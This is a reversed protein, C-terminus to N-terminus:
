PRVRRSLGTSSHSILIEDDNSESFTSISKQFYNSPKLKSSPCKLTSEVINSPHFDGYRQQQKSKMSHQNPIAASLLTDEDFTQTYFYELPRSLNGSLSHTTKSPYFHAWDDFNKELHQQSSKVFPHSLHSSNSKTDTSKKSEDTFSDDEHGSDFTDLKDSFTKDHSQRILWSPTSISHPHNISYANMLHIQKNAQIGTMYTSGHVKSVNWCDDEEPIESSQIVINQMINDPHVKQQSLSQSEQLWLYFGRSLINDVSQSSSPDLQNSGISSISQLSSEADFSSTQQIDSTDTSLTQHDLENTLVSKAEHDKTLLKSRSNKKSIVESSTTKSWTPLSSSPQPTNIQQRMYEPLFLDLKSSVEESLTTSTNSSIGTTEKVKYEPQIADSSPEIHIAAPPTLVPEDEGKEKRQSRKKRRKVPKEATITSELIVAPATQPVLEEREAQNIITRDNTQNAPEDSLKPIEEIENILSTTFQISDQQNQSENPSDIPEEVPPDTTSSTSPPITESESTPVFSISTNQDVMEEVSLPTSDVKTVPLSHTNDENTTSIKTHETDPLALTQPVPIRLLRDNQDTSKEVSTDTVNSVISSTPQNTTSIAETIQQIPENKAVLQDSKTEKAHQEHVVKPKINKSPRSTNSAGVPIITSTEVSVSRPPTYSSSIQRKDQRTKVQINQNSASKSIPTTHSVSPSPSGHRGHFAFRNQDVTRNVPREYRTKTSPSSPINASRPASTMRKRYTVLQFGDNDEEEEDAQPVPPKPLIVKTTTTMSSISQSPINSHEVVPSSPDDSQANLEHEITASDISISSQEDKKQKKHKNGKKKSLLSSSEEHAITTKPEVDRDIMVSSTIAAATPQEPKPASLIRGRYRVLQFGENDEDEEEKKSSPIINVRTIKTTSEMTPLVSQVISSSGSPDVTSKQDNIEMSPTEDFLNETRKDESDGTSILQVSEDTIRHSHTINVTSEPADYLIAEKEDNKKSKKRKKKSTTDTTESVIPTPPIPVNPNGHLVIPKLDIDPSVPVKITDSSSPHKEHITSSPIRKRRQVIQFGADDHDHEDQLKANQMTTKGSSEDLSQASKVESEATSDHRNLQPHDDNIVPSPQFLPKKENENDIQISTEEDFVTDMKQDQTDIFSILQEYEDKTPEPADYLIMEKKDKNKSKKRKKKPTVDTTGSIIPISPIPANPNGHLIIPKLDIDPSVPIKVDEINSSMTKEHATSSPIRKRRQVLQFDADDQVHENELETTEMVIAKSSENLVQANSPQSVVEHHHQFQEYFQAFRIEADIILYHSSYWPYDDNLVQLPQWLLHTENENGISIAVTEVSAINTKQDESNIAPILPMQDDAITQSVMSTLTLEPADYLIMEKKHKNKSKKRKKEPTTDTTESVIPTSPILVTPNGSLIVPKLDIDSSAPVDNADKSSHQKEHVTSSPIRKRRQVIQFGADDQDHEDQLKTNQMTTKGSSEELSQANAPLTVTQNSLHLQEHSQAFMLESDAISDYRNLQSHDDNIVISSQFSSKKENENDIQMSTEEDFVTDMKQDQTDILSILQEQEDKTPEPANYLIMEKKDKNKSKKRKKKPIIDTRESIIPVSSIPANPNGHLIVPKLDIDPSAPVENADSSSPHKEQVTSSPIRKRRQVIQFDADDHEHEDQLEANRIAAKGSSEDIIVQSSQFLSKKENGDDIQMSTEEDFAHDTKQDQTDILSILQEHEDRTTQSSMLNVPLEPADYLIMEKKDNKKSKQRKKKPTADIAQSLLPRHSIPANPNGHLLVPKLDIDPSVPVDTVDNISSFPKEHITSSPIRKRRQVIQFGTDDQDHEEQVKASEVVTKEVSEALLHTNASSSLAQDSHHLQPYVQSFRTEAEIISYHSAYWPYDDSIVQLPQYPSKTEDQQNKYQCHRSRHLSHQKM